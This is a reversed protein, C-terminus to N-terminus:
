ECMNRVGLVYACMSASNLMATMATLDLELELELEQEQEREQEQEVEQEKMLGQM